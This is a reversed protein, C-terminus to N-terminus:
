TGGGNKAVHTVAIRYFEYGRMASAARGYCRARYDAAGVDEDLALGRERLYGPLGAPDFGFTWREGAARLTAFLVDTGPFTSPDDLVRQHVYTFLVRSGAAAGACWRLTGDVAPATLYNTVGEWTVVTPASPDYGAAHMADALDDVDFDIAVFRVHAPLTGLATAVVDRKRASTSPHDVEFVTARAMGPLRYARADYGAGLIVVQTAGARLADAVVDDIYRTRAVASTRTGPWRRDIYSRLVDGLPPLRSAHALVRLGTPLFAPAYPDDFLRADGRTSELARFLAMYEATRSAEGARM